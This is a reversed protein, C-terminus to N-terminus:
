GTTTRSPSTWSLPVAPPVRLRYCRTDTSQSAAAGKTNQALIQAVPLALYRESFLDDRGCLAEFTLWSSLGESLSRRLLLQESM